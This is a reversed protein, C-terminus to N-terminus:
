VLASEDLPKNEYIRNIHFVSLDLSVKKGTILESIYRGVAPAQQLGHGSFGAALYFGKVDPCEGLIANGDFTNVAYLGAWGRVLRLRDFAPVFEALEPWLNEFFRSQDWTFDFGTRDEPMSKGCIILGGTETRFYLGSPLVTLPFPNEPKIMPDLVFVQRIVPIVPIEVGATRAVDAAWAGACNVVFKASIDDGSGLKVGEVRGRGSIINIVRDGIFDVGMFQSKKKYGMLFSFADLYCDDPSFYGGIVNEPNYLQYKAKIEEPKLWHVNCKLNKQLDFAQKMDKQNNEDILFLNGERHIDLFHKEQSVAMEEEFRDLIEFTYLSIQINEKLNFQIRINALSLTTSANSYTFDPEIVAIKKKNCTKALYYAASSGIIGGGIIVIDYVKKRM